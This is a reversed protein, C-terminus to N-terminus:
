PGFFCFPFRRRSERVEARRPPSSPGAMVGSFGSSDGSRRRIVLVSGSDRIGGSPSRSGGAEM